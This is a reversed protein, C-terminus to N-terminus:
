ICVEHMEPLHAVSPTGNFLTFGDDWEWYAYPVQLSDLDNKVCETYRCRSGDNPVYANYSGFEGCWIPVNNIVGFNKAISLANFISQCTGDTDYSNYYSEGVTGVVSPNMPPMTTSDYPFPIGTTGLAPGAWSAGQHTFVYPEYLHFTYIINTDPLVGM